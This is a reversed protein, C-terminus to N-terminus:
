PVVGGEQYESLWEQLKKRARFLHSKVTNLPVDMAEAIEEYSFDHVYRLVIATQQPPPLKRLAQQLDMAVGPRPLVAAASTSRCCASARFAGSCCGSSAERRACSAPGCRM